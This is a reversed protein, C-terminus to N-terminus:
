LTCAIFRGTPRRAKGTNDFCSLRDHYPLAGAEATRATDHYGIEASMLARMYARRLRLGQRESSWMISGLGVTFTVLAAIGLLALYGAYRGIAEVLDSEFLANLLGAFIFTFMPM